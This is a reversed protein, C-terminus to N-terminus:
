SMIFNSTMVLKLTGRPMEAETIKEELQIPGKTASKPKGEDRRM